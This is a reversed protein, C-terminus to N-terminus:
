ALMASAPAFDPDRTVTQELFVAADALAKAGRERAAVKAHLFAMYADLDGTRNRVLKEGPAAPMQLAAAIKEAIDEELDFIAPLAADYDKSWLAAGDGAQVLRVSVRVRDDALRASGQVLYTANLAQGIAKTDRMAPQLRFASSRAVVDLGRVGTLAAAVEDTMGGAFFDQKADGSNNELPLVAITSPQATQIQAAASSLAAGLMLGTLAALGLGRHRLGGWFVCM